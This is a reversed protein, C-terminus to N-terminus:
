WVFQILKQIWQQFQLYINLKLIKNDWFFMKQMKKRIEQQFSVMIKTKFKEDRFNWNHWLSESSSQYVYKTEWTQKKKAFM